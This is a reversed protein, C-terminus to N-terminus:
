WDRLNRELARQLKRCAAGGDHVTGLVAHVIAHRYGAAALTERDPPPSKRPHIEHAM